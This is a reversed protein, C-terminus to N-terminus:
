DGQARDRRLRRVRAPLNRALNRDDCCRRCPPLSSRAPGPLDGIAASGVFSDGASPVNRQKGDPGSAGILHVNRRLAVPTGTRPRHNGSAPQLPPRPRRTRGRPCQGPPRGACLVFSSSPTTQAHMNVTTAVPLESRAITCRNDAFLRPRPGDSPAAPRRTEPRDRHWPASSSAPPAARVGRRDPAAVVRQGVGWARATRVPQRGIVQGRREGLSMQRSALMPVADNSRQMWRRGPLREHGVDGDGDGAARSRNWVPRRRGVEEVAVSRDHGGADVPLKRSRAATKTASSATSPTSISEGSPRDIRRCEVACTMACATCSRKGPVRSPM